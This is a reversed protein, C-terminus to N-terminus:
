NAWSQVVKCWFNQQDDEQLPPHGARSACDRSRLRTSSLTSKRSRNSTVVEVTVGNRATAPVLTIYAPIRKAIEEGGVCFSIVAERQKNLASRQLLAWPWHEPRFKEFRLRM